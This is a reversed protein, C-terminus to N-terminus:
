VDKYGKYNITVGTCQAVENGELHTFAAPQLTTFDIRAAGAGRVRSILEDPLIDRGIATQQWVRYEEVAKEVAAKITEAKTKDSELIWYDVNIAYEKSAPSLVAVDDTLPRIDDGSLYDTIQQLLEVSPLEGGGMLPYVKVEGPTPSTVSVDIIASSVSYTHFVYAKRPGAVSFSNPAIRIRDAYEADAEADAGGTTTTLNEAKVLFAMPTAITAIQGALYDNGAVGPTTCTASVEGTIEGVAINIEEDTAFTVVGNTVEFGAPITYINGLPDSLTFRLTTKASSEPLREVSMYEGLKDLYVGQSYSLLNQKAAADIAARQQIIVDAITLLFLRVPDGAALTRGAAAEYATLIESEVKAADTELFKVAPLNWRPFTETSM